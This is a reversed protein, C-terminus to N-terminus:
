GGMPLAARRYLLPLRAASATGPWDARDGRGKEGALRGVGTSLRSGWEGEAALLFGPLASMQADGGADGLSWVKAVLTHSGTKLELDYTEFFWYHPAGREPGRGIREGDLFLEYREDASVHVRIAAPQSVTFERRFATVVPPLDAGPCGIWSAPWLGSKRWDKGANQVLFPDQNITARM